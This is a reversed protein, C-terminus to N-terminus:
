TRAVYTNTFRVSCEGVGMNSTQNAFDQLTRAQNNRDFPFGMARRDPYLKNRIGCFAYSDSCQDSADINENVTDDNFNSIMVFTDMTFGEPSGKPVLLHNPWGCGCFNFQNDDTASQATAGINRFTRNYPITIASHEDRRNITNVGPNLKVTFRDMEIMLVRQDRFTFPMGREDNRPSMFIRCYGTRISNSENNVEIKWSFPAHQLHTFQAFINGEPGFDMGAALNLEGRQWYTLIVNAPTNQQTMQCAVSQVTVGVFDLDNSTYSPLTDKHKRFILDLYSHWRYFIPDRMATTVDGMVGFQELYNNDPDHNYAIVNHGMNHLDGYLRPNPSLISAEIMDGLIDIGRSEDLPIRQGTTTEVYGQDIAQLIRDRWGELDSIQVQTNDDPRDIDKLTVNTFRPPYTQNNSSRSLKPFYGEPIAERLNSLHRVRGMRNCLREINYRAIIQSHMYYFLEGRRDKRVIREPGNAPYVLHWHWHHLNVGIDERFYALRQEEERESATYSPPIVIPRRVGDPVFSCEERATPLIAPDLFQNPFTEAVSPIPINQTDARHQMAVSLAYQYLQPNVRDHAYAACSFLSDVDKANFFIEILRGSIETHKRCFLCFPKSSYRPLDAAFDLNPLDELTVPIIKVNDTGFRSQIETSVNKYKDTYFNSPVEVRVNESKDNKVGFIPELPRQFLLALNKTNSM